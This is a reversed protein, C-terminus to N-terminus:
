VVRFNNALYAWNQPFEYNLHWFTIGRLEYLEMLRYKAALSRPDEFWVRRRQGNATYEYWPAEAQWDYRIPVGRAVALDQANNVSIVSATTEPTDPLPWNYGYFPLAMMLKRPNVQSVAYNVVQEVWWIPAIANPPGQPYGFEITMVAMIDVIKGIAAYDFAGTLVNAPDDSTKAHANLHLISDEMATKLERLFATFDNRREPPIFEFDISVGAYGKDQVTSVINQALDRRVERSQLIQGILEADFRTGVWNTVVMLPKVGRRKSASIALRDDPGNLTGDANVIYSFVALYTLQRSIENFVPRLNDIEFPIVFGLTETRYRIPSPIRLRQGVMLRLPDLGPNAQYIRELTTNFRRAIEWLTDGSKIEYYREPLGRDPIYLALGPVIFATSDLGNVEAILEISVGYMRSIAWLTDGGQVTHIAM